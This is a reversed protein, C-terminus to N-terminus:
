DNEKGKGEVDFNRLWLAPELRDLLETAVRADEDAGTELSAELAGVTRMLLRYLLADAGRALV